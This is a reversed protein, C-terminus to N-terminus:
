KPVFQNWRDGQYTWISGDVGFRVGGAPAPSNLVVKGDSTNWAKVWSKAVLGGYDHGVAALEAGDSRFVIHSFPGGPSSWKKQLTLPDMLVLSDRDAAAVLKEDPSFVLARGAMTSRALRVGDDVRYVTTRPRDPGVTGSSTAGTFTTYALSGDRNLALVEAFESLEQILEYNEVDWIRVKETGRAFTALRRSDGSWAVREIVLGGDPHKLEAVDKGSELDRVVAVADALPDLSRNRYVHICLWRGDPSVSYSIEAALGAFLDGVMNSGPLRKGAYPEATTAWVYLQLHPPKSRWVAVGRETLCVIRKGDESKTISWSVSNLLEPPLRLTTRPSTDPLESLRLDSGVVCFWQGDNTFGGGLVNAAGGRGEGGARYRDDHNEGVVAYFVAGALFVGGAALWIGRNKLLRSIM